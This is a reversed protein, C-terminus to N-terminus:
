GRRKRELQKKFIFRIIKTRDKEALDLFKVGILYTKNEVSALNVRIVQAMAVITENEELLLTVKIKKGIALPEKSVILLGGGSIDRTYCEGFPLPVKCEVDDDAFQEVNIQLMAPLRVFMRLQIKEVKDPLAIIWVPIPTLKKELLMSTFQYVQEEYIIKGYLYEGNGLYVPVGHDMPMAIIIKDNNVDEIRSTYFDTKGPLRIEIRSNVAFIKAVPM